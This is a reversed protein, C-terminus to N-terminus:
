PLLSQNPLSFVVNRANKLSHKNQTCSPRDGRKKGANTPAPRCRIPVRRRGPRAAGALETGGSTSKEAGAACASDPSGAAERDHDKSRDHELEM